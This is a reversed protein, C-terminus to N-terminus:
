VGDRPIRVKTREFGPYQLYGFGTPSYEGSEQDIVTEIQLKVAARNIADRFGKADGLGALTDSHTVLVVGRNIKRIDACSSKVFKASADVEDAWLTFEDCILTSPNFKRQGEAYLKYDATIDADFRKM